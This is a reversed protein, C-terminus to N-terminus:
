RLLGRIGGSILVNVEYLIRPAALGGPSALYSPTWEPDFKQKFARLGEFHYFSEGHAYVFGGIRNWLSALQHSDMGSLPAAGLSFWGFGERAAWLMIEGFLADMAMKPGAPDYRMLDLSVEAKGGAQLLTAFAVIRGTVTERMVAHDFSALYVEDFSGVSFAKEEGDKMAMWADSVRRLDALVAPLDARTVIGFAFGDRAMRNRAHRFDKRAPGDLTFGALNVRAVEGIKLISLGLDLFTTLYQLSVAYFACRKGLRDAKERLQWILARGAEADGVPDGKAILASGSDGYALFARGDGSILFEKDGLLDIQAIADPSQAVLTRVADPIPRPGQVRSRQNLVSNLTIGVMLLALLLSGRLFRSADGDTEFQWWLADRYAIHSYAFLGVWFVAALLATLSVIWGANLRYVSAGEVRYFASRFAALMGWASLIGLAEHWEIGRISSAIFGIAMLGMAILWARYLKRYLGRAIVVLLLGAVSGALHSAEIFGLPLIDGLIGLGSGDGPLSGWILLITGSLMAVGAAAGPVMPGVVKYAHGVTRGVARRQSVLWLVALGAVGVGFPLVTYVLRYLILAALVDSRGGAGLGAIITAEFVGLGGPAHSVIGLAIAAVFVIFFLAVNQTLDGPLLVYLTASAAVLDVICVAALGATIGASPLDFGFRAFRFRRGGQALWVFLGAVALLIAAGVGIEVPKSIPLVETLGVPHAVLLLGLILALGLWFGSWATVIVGTIQALDLGLSAYIHYRVATGTLWSFGLLNSIAFGTAGAYGAVYAPVLGRAASRVGLIDYCSLALFSAFTACIALLLTAMPAASLDAKVDTWHVNAAMRHLVVFTLAVICLPVVIRVTPHSLFGTVRDTKV